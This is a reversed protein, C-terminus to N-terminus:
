MDEIKEKQADKCQRCMRVMNCMQRDFPRAAASPGVAFANSSQDCMGV